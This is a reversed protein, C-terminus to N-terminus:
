GDDGRSIAQEESARMLAYFPMLGMITLTEDWTGSVVFRCSTVSAHGAEDRHQQTPQRAAATMPTDGDAFSFVLGAQAATDGCADERTTTELTGPFTHKTLGGEFNM